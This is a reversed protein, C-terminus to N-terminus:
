ALDHDEVLTGNPHEKFSTHCTRCRVGRGRVVYWPRHSGAIDEDSGAHCRPCSWPMVQDDLMGFFIVAAMVLAGVIFLVTLLSMVCWSCLEAHPSRTAGALVEDLKDYSEGAGDATGTGFM